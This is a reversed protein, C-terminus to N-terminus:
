NKKWFTSEKRSENIALIENDDYDDLNYVLCRHLKKGDGYEVYECETFGCEMGYDSPDVPQIDFVERTLLNIKCSTELEGNNQVTTFVGDIVSAHVPVGLKNEQVVM